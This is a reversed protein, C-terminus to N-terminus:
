CSGHMGGFCIAKREYYFVSSLSTLVKRFKTHETIAWEEENRYRFSGLNLRTEQYSSYNSNMAAM